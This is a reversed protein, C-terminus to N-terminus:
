QMMPHLQIENGKENQQGDVHRTANSFKQMLQVSKNHRPIVLQSVPYVIDVIVVSIVSFSEDFSSKGKLESHFMNQRENQVVQQYREYSLQCYCSDVNQEFKPVVAIYPFSRTQESPKYKPFESSKYNAIKKEVHSVEDKRSQIPSFGNKRVRIENTTEQDCNEKGQNKPQKPKVRQNHQQGFAKWKPTVDGIKVFEVVEKNAVSVVSKGSSVVMPDSKSVEYNCHHNANNNVTWSSLHYDNNRSQSNEHDDSKNESRPFTHNKENTIDNSLNCNKQSGNEKQNIGNLVVVSSTQVAVVSFTSMTPDNNKEEKNTQHNTEQSEQESHEHITASSSFLNFSGTFMDVVVVLFCFNDVSLIM